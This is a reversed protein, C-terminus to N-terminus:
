TSSVYSVGAREMMTLYRLPDEGRKKKLAMANNAARFVVGIALGAGASLLAHSTLGNSLVSGLGGTVAGGVPEAGVVKEILKSLSKQAEEGDGTLLDKLHQVMNKHDNKWQAILKNARERLYQDLVKSNKIGSPIDASIKELGERFAGIPEWDKNLALLNEPTLKSVDCNQYVVFEVLDTPRPEAPRDDETESAFGLSSRFIEEKTRHITRGYIDPFETVLSLGKM